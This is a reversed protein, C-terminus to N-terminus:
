LEEVRVRRQETTDRDRVSVLGDTELTDFDVVVCHPTSIEDM